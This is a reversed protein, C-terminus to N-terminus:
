EIDYVTVKERPEPLVIEGKIILVRQLRDGVYEPNLEAFSKCYQVKMSCEEADKEMQVFDLNEKEIGESCGWGDVTASMIFYKDSM